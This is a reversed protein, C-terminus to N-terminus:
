FINRARGFLGNNTVQENQVGQKIPKVDVRAYNNKKLPASEPRLFNKAVSHGKFISFLAKLKVNFARKTRLINVNKNQM